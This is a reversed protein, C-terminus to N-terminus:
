KELVVHGGSLAATRNKNLKYSTSELESTIVANLASDAQCIFFVFGVVVVVVTWLKKLFDFAHDSLNSTRVMSATLFPIRLTPLAVLVFSYM